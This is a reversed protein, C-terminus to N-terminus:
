ETGREKNSLGQLEAIREDINEKHVVEWDGGDMVISIPLSNLEDIRAKTVEDEILNLIAKTAYRIYEDNSDNRAVDEPFFYDELMKDIKKELEASPQTTPKPKTM